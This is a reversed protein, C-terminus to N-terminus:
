RSFCLVALTVATAAVALAIPPIGQAPVDITPDPMISAGAMGTFHLGVIGLTLLIAAGLRHTADFKSLGVQTAIGGGIIGILLSAIVFTKDFQVIGPVVLASMGVYHMAGIGAGIIAGGLLPMGITRMMSVALGLGSILIAVLISLLTPNLLYGAPLNPQFAIMAIFHTAWVGSGTAFAGAGIWWIRARPGAEVARGILSFATYAALFCIFGAVIVLRLDHQQTICDYVQLM